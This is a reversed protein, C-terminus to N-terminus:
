IKPGSTEQSQGQLYLQKLAPGELRNQRRLTEAILQVTRPNEQIMHQVAPIASRFNPGGVRQAVEYDLSTDPDSLHNSGFWYDESAHGALYISPDGKMEHEDEEINTVGGNPPLLEVFNVQYGKRLGVFVHGAEHYAAQTLPDTEGPSNPGSEPGIRKPRQRKQDGPTEGM